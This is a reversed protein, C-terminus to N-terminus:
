LHDTDGWMLAWRARALTAAGGGFDRLFFQFRHPGPLFGLRLLLSFAPHTTTILAAAVKVRAEAARHLVGRLLQKAEGAAGRRWAVEVVALADVGRLETRRTVAYAEDTMAIDYRWAPSEGYRWRLFAASREHHAASGLCERAIAAMTEAGSLCTHHEFERAARRLVLARWSLPRVLVPVKLRPTWGNRLLPPFTRPRIGYATGFAYEHEVAEIAFAHLRSYVGRERWEPDTMAELAMVARQAAGDVIYRQPLFGFHSIIRGDSEGVFLHGAGAPSRRFEWEWFRPERKEPDVEPFCRARLALIAGRDGPEAARFTVGSM